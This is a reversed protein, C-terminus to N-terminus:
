LSRALVMWWRVMNLRLSADALDLDHVSDPLFLLDLFFGESRSNQETRAM